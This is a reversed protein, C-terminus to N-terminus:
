LIDGDTGDGTSEGDKYATKTSKPSSSKSEHGQGEGENGKDAEADDKQGLENSGEVSVATDRAPSTERSPTISPEATADRDDGEPYPPLSELAQPLAQTGTGAVPKRPISIGLADAATTTEHKSSAPRGDKSAVAINDQEQSNRSQKNSRPSSPASHFKDVEMPSASRRKQTTSDPSAKAPQAPDAPDATTAPPTPTKPASTTSNENHSPSLLSNSNASPAPANGGERIRKSRDSSTPNSNSRKRRFLGITAKTATKTSGIVNDKVIGVARKGKRSIASIVSSKTSSTENSADQPLPQKANPDPNANPDSNAITDPNTNTDSPDPQQVNGPENTNDTTTNKGTKKEWLPMIASSISALPFRHRVHQQTCVKAVTM